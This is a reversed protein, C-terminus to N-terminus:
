LQRWFRENFVNFASAATTTIKYVTVAVFRKQRSSLKPLLYKLQDYLNTLIFTFLNFQSQTSSFCYFKKSHQSLQTSLILLRM